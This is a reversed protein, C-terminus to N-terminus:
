PKHWVDCARVRVSGMTSYKFYDLMKKDRDTFSWVQAKYVM